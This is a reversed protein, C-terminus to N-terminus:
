LQAAAWDIVFKKTYEELTDRVKELHTRRPGGLLVGTEWLNVQRYVRTNTAEVDVFQNVYVEFRIFSACVDVGEAYSSTIGVYYFVGQEEDLKIQSASIPYEVSMKLDEVSLGCREGPPDVESFMLAVSEVGKLSKSQGWAPSLWCLFVALTAAAIGVSTRAPSKM